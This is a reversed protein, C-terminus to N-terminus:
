DSHHTLPVIVRRVLLWVAPGIVPTLLCLVACLLATTPTSEAREVSYVATATLIVLVLASLWVTPSDMAAGYGSLSLPGHATSPTTATPM